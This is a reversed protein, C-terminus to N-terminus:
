VKILGPGIQRLRAPIMENGPNSHLPRDTSQGVLPACRKVTKKSEHLSNFLSIMRLSPTHWVVGLINRPGFEFSFCVGRKFKIRLNLTDVCACALYLIARVGNRM